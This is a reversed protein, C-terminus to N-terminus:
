TTYIALSAVVGGGVVREKCASPRRVDLPRCANLREGLLAQHYLLFTSPTQVLTCCIILICLLMCSAPCVISLFSIARGPGSSM